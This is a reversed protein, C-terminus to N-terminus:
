MRLKREEGESQVGGLRGSGRGEGRGLRGSRGERGEEWGEVGRRGEGGELGGSRGEWEGGGLRGSRGEGEGSWEDRVCM